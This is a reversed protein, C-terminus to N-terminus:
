MVENIVDTGPPPVFTFIDTNIRPNVIVNEFSIVTQQDLGDWLRMQTITDGKFILEVKRLMGESDRSILEYVNPNKEQIDFFQNLSKAKGTLLLAPTEDLRQNVSQILVQALDEDYIWVVKGDSIILQKEPPLVEWRFKGPRQLIIKGTLRASNMRANLTEQTFNASLADTKNLKEDLREVPSQALACNISLFLIFIIRLLM